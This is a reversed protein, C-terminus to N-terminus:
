SERPVLTLANTVSQSQYFLTETKLTLGQSNVNVPKLEPEPIPNEKTACAVTLVGTAILLIIRYTKM